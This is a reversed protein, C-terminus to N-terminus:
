LKEIWQSHVDEFSSGFVANFDYNRCCQLVKDLSYQEILYRTFLYSEPYSLNNGEAKPDYLTSQEYLSHTAYPFAVTEKYDPETVTVYAIAQQLKAYDFVQYSEFSGGLAAYRANVAKVFRDLATGAAYSDTFAKYLRQSQPTEMYALEDACFLAVGEALWNGYSRTQDMTLMHVTEHAFSFPDALYIKRQTCDAYTKVERGTIYYTMHSDFSKQLASYQQPAQTRIQEMIAATQQVGSSLLSLVEAPADMSGDIDDIYYTRNETQIILPYTDFESSYVAGDLWSLSYPLSFAQQCGISDLWAQRYSLMDAQLFADFGHTEIVYQSFWYATERAIQRAAYGAFDDVFFANFLTLAPLSNTDAYYEALDYQCELAEGSFYWWAGLQKWYETTDLYVGALSPLYAGSEIATPTCLLGEQCYVAGSDGIPLADEMLLVKVKAAKPRKHEMTQYDQLIKDLLTQIQADTYALAPDVCLCVNGQEFVTFDVDGYGSISITQSNGSGILMIASVIVAVTVLSCISIWVAKRM